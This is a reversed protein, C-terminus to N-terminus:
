IVTKIFIEELSTGNEFDERRFRHLVKGKQMILGEDCVKEMDNLIHSNM